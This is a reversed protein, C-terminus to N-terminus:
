AASFKRLEKQSLRIFVSSMKPDATVSRLVNRRWDTPEGMRAAEVMQAFEYSIKTSGGRTGTTHGGATVIVAQDKVLENLQEVLTGPDLPVRVILDPLSMYGARMVSQFVPNMELPDQM